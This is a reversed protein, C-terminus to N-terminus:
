PIRDIIIKQDITFYSHHGWIIYKEYHVGCVRVTPGVSALLLIVDGRCM